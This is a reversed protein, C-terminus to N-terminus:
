LKTPRQKHEHKYCSAQKHKHANTQLIRQCTPFVDMTDVERVHLHYIVLCYYYTFYYYCYVSSIVLLAVYNRLLMLVYYFCFYHCYYLLIFLGGFPAWLSAMCENEGRVRGRKENM